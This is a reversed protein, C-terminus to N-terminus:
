AAEPTNRTPAFAELSIAPKEGAITAAVVNATAPALLIGNRYHGAAVYYGDLATAGLYPRGDHSAPRLGAWTEVIAFEGLSPAMRLAVELLSAIGRATVREDFGRDLVTAGVLLRGDARPVLYTFDSWVLGRAFGRPIAIALMEGAIPRVPIRVAQPVGALEAAWAGAANVVVPAAVFGRETRIGRVRRADCELEVAGSLDFRVGLATCAATLARSLRRNDVSGENRVRVAGRVERGLMPECALTEARDLVESQAGYRAFTAAQTALGTARVDDLAVHLTGEMRLRADVGTRERLDAVFDPYARLSLDCLELLARDELEESYPALMGAGAWSAARGPEARDFVTVSAGRKGLEFAIGCGILGAGIVAVDGGFRVESM